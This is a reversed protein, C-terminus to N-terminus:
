FFVSIPNLHPHMLAPGIGKRWCKFCKGEKPWQLPLLITGKLGARVRSNSEGMGGVYVLGHMRHDLKDFALASAKSSSFQRYISTM